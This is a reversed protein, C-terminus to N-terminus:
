KRYGTHLGLIIKCELHNDDFKEAFNKLCPYTMPNRCQVCQCNHDWSKMFEPNCIGKEHLTTCGRIHFNCWPDKKKRSSM